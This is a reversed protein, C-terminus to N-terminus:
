KKKKSLKDLKKEIDKLRKMIRKYGLLRLIILIVYLGFIGGLFWQLTGMVSRILAALPELAPPIAVELTM